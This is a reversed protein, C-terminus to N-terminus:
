PPSAPDGDPIVLEWHPLEQGSPWRLVWLDNLAEDYHNVSSVAGTAVAPQRLSSEVEGFTGPVGAGDMLRDGDSDQITPNSRFTRDEMGDELGDDDSDADWPSTSAGLISNSIASGDLQFRVNFERQNWLGDMDLDGNPGLDPYRTITEAWDM